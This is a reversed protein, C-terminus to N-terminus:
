WLFTLSTTHFSCFQRQSVVPVPKRRLSSCAIPFYCRHPRAIQAAQLYVSHRAVKPEARSVPNQDVLEPVAGPPPTPVVIRHSRSM